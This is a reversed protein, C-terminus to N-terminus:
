DDDIKTTYIVLNEMFDRSIIEVYAEKIKKPLHLNSSPCTVRFDDGVVYFGM